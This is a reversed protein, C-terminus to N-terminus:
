AEHIILEISKWQTVARLSEILQNSSEQKNFFHLTKFYGNADPNDFFIIPVNMEQLTHNTYTVLQTTKSVTPSAGLYLKFLALGTM